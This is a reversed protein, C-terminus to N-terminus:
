NVLLYIIFFINVISVNMRKVPEAYAPDQGIIVLVNSLLFTDIENQSLKIM